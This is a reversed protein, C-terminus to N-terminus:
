LYFPMYIETDKQTATCKHHYPKSKIDPTAIFKTRLIESTKVGIKEQPRLFTKPITRNHM